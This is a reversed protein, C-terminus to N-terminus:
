CAGGTAATVANHTRSTATKIHVVTVLVDRQRVLLTRSRPHYRIEDGDLDTEDVPVDVGMEWAAQPGIGPEDSRQYWRSFAHDSVTLYKM